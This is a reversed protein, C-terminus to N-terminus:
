SRSNEKSRIKSSRERLKQHIWLNIITESSVGRKKALSRVKEALSPDLACYSVESELQVRFRVRKTSEWVEALNQRDWFEGLERYTRGKSLSSKGNKM